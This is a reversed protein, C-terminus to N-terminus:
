FEKDLPRNEGVDKGDQDDRDKGFGPMNYIKVELWVTATESQCISCFMQCKITKNYYFIQLKKKM